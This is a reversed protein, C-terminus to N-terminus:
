FHSINQVIKLTASVKLQMRREVKTWQIMAIDAFFSFFLMLSTMWIQNSNTYKKRMVAISYCFFLTCIVKFQWFSISVFLLWLFSSSPFSCPHFLLLSFTQAIPLQIKSPFNECKGLRADVESIIEFTHYFM